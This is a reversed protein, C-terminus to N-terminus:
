CFFCVGLDGAEEDSTEEEGPDAGLRKRKRGYITCCNIFTLLKSAM